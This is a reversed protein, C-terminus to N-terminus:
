ASEILDEIGSTALIGKKLPNDFDIPDIRNFKRIREIRRLGNVLFLMLRRDTCDLVTFSSAEPREDPNLRFVPRM